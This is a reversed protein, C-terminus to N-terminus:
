AANGSLGAGQQAKRALYRQRAADAADVEQQRKRDYDVGTERMKFAGFARTYAREAGEIRLALRNLFLARAGARAEHSEMAGYLGAPAAREGNEYSLLRTNCEQMKDMAQQYYPLASAYAGCMRNILADALIRANFALANRGVGSGDVMGPPPYRDEPDYVDAPLDMMDAITEVMFRGADREVLKSLHAWENPLDPASKFLEALTMFRAAPLRANRDDQGPATYAPAGDTGTIKRAPAAQAIKKQAM